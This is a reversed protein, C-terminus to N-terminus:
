LMSFDIIEDKIEIKEDKELAMLAKIIAQPPLPYFLPNFSMPPTKQVVVIAQQISLQNIKSFTRYGRLIQTVQDIAYDIPMPIEVQKPIPRLIKIIKDGKGQNCDRCLTILNELEDTGGKSTPIHHDVDLKVNGGRKRGCAQCSYKDRALVLLRVERSIRRRPM